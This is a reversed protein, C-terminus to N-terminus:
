WLHTIKVSSTKYSANKHLSIYCVNTLASNNARGVYAHRLAKTKGINRKKFTTNLKIAPLKINDAVTWFNKCSQKYYHSVDGYLYHWIVSSNKHRVSTYMVEHIAYLEPCRSKNSTYWENGNLVLLTLQQFHTFICTNPLISNINVTCFWKLM